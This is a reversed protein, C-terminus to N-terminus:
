RIGESHRCQRGWHHCQKQTGTSGAGIAGVHLCLGLPNSDNTQFSFHALILNQSLLLLMIVIGLLINITELEKDNNDAM